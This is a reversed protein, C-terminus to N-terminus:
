TRGSRASSAPCRPRPPVAAPGSGSRAPSAGALSSPPMVVPPENERRAERQSPAGHTTCPYRATRADDQCSRSYRQLPLGAVTPEFGVGETSRGSRRAPGPTARRLAPRASRQGTATSVAVSRDIPPVTKGGNEWARPAQGGVVVAARSHHSGHGEGGKLVYLLEERAAGRAERCGRPPTGRSLM